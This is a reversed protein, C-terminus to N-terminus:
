NKGIAAEITEKNGKDGNVIAKNDDPKSRNSLAKEIASAIVDGLADKNTEDLVSGISDQLFDPAKIESDDAHVMRDLIMGLTIIYEARSIGMAKFQSSLTQEITEVTSDVLLSEVIANKRKPTRSEKYIDLLSRRSTKKSEKVDEKEDVNSENEEEVEIEDGFDEDDSEVDDEAFEDDAIDLDGDLDDFDMSIDEHDDVMVDPNDMIESPEIDDDKTSVNLKAGQLLDKLTDLEIEIELDLDDETFDESQNLIEDYNRDLVNYFDNIINDFKETIKYNKKIIANGCMSIVEYLKNTKKLKM